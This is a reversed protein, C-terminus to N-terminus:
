GAGDAALFRLLTPGVREAAGAVLTTEFGAVEFLDSGRETLLEDTLSENTGAYALSNLDDADAGYAKFEQPPTADTLFLVRPELERDLLIQILRRSGLPAGPLDTKEAGLAVFEVSHDPVSARLARALELFVGVADSGGSGDYPVVVLYEPDETSPPLAVINTTRVTNEIPISDFEVVYGAQQLHATIYTSAAFEQQSGAERRPLEDAFQESHAHVADIEIAPPGSPSASPRPTELPTCAALALLALLATKKM